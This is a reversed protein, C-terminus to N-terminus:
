SGGDTIGGFGLRDGGGDAPRPNPEGCASSQRVIDVWTPSVSGQLPMRAIAQQAIRRALDLLAEYMAATILRAQEHSRELLAEMQAVFEALAREYDAALIDVPAVTASAIAPMAPAAFAVLGTAAVRLFSRRGLIM